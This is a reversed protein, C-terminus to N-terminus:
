YTKYSNNYATIKEELIKNLEKAKNEAERLPWGTGIYFNRIRCKGVITEGGFGWLKGISSSQRSKTKDFGQIEMYNIERKPILTITGGKKITLNTKNFKLIHKGNLNWLFRNWVFYGIILLVSIITLLFSYRGNNDFLLAYFM